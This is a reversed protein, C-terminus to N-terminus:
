IKRRLRVLNRWRWNVLSGRTRQMAEDGIHSLVTVTGILLFLMTLKSEM